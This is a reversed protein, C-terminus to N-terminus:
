SPMNFPSARLKIGQNTQKPLSMYKAVPLPKAKFNNTRRKLIDIAELSSNRKPLNLISPPQETVKDSISYKSDIKIYNHILNKKPAKPSRRIIPQITKLGEPLASSSNVPSAKITIFDEGTPTKHVFDVKSESPMLYKKSRSITKVLPFKKTDVSHFQLLAKGKM